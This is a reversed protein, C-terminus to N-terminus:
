AKQTSKSETKSGSLSDLTFDSFKAVDDKKKVSVALTDGVLHSKNDAVLIKALIGKESAEFPM